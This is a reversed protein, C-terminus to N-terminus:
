VPVQTEYSEPVNKAGMRVMHEPDPIRGFTNKADRTWDQGAMRATGWHGSTWKYDCRITAKFKEKAMICFSIDEGHNTMVFPMLKKKAFKELLSVRILTCAMGCADIDQIEESGGGDYPEFMSSPKNKARSKSLRMTSLFSPITRSWMMPCAIDADCKKLRDLMNIPFDMDSDVFLLWEAGRRIAEQAAANRAHSIVYDGYFSFLTKPLQGHILAFFISSVTAATFGQKSM